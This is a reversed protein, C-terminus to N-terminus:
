VLESFLCPHPMLASPRWKNGHAEMLLKGGDSSWGCRLFGLWSTLFDLPFAQGMRSAGQGEGRAEPRECPHAKMKTLRHPVLLLLSPSQPELDELSGVVRTHM